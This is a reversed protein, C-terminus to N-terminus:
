RAFTVFKRSAKLMGSSVFASGNTVKFPVSLGRERFASTSRGPRVSNEEFPWTLQRYNMQVMKEQNRKTAREQFALFHKAGIRQQLQQSSISSKWSAPKSYFVELGSTAKSVNPFRTTHHRFLNIESYPKKRGANPKIQKRTEEVEITCDGMPFKDYTSNDQVKLTKYLRIMLEKVADENSLDIVDPSPTNLKVQRKANGSCKTRKTNGHYCDKETSVGDPVSVRRTVKRHNNTMKSKGAADDVADKSKMLTNKVANSVVPESNVRLRQRPTELISGRSSPVPQNLLLEDEGICPLVIRSKDNRETYQPSLKSAM